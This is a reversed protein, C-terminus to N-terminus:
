KPFARQLDTLHKAWVGELQFILISYLHVQRIIQLVIWSAKQRLSSFDIFKCGYDESMLKIAFVEGIGM